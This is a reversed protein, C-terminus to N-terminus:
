RMPAASQARAEGGASDFQLRHFRAYRGNRALLEAHRGVEVIRGAELVVIRDASEVTSLRHAIVLTTRGRMLEELSAQVQKESESDLASTAEDLILIPADKLFARAIALRQRQGGSLKLGNEGVLTDLGDPLEDVFGMIHAARAAALVRERPAERMTGYAINAAITDNFLVVEQSVLAINDRLSKLTLAEVPIGDVLLRGGSAHYFRPILNVLTTKGGGSGGVLAVTEGPAIRLDIDALADAEAGDYRFRLREFAIEGRARGLPTTGRDEEPVRDILGFVSEAAALGRQLHANVEALRKLPALMMLMAALFSVFGGVTTEARASQLLAISIVVAVGLSVIMQTIPVTAAAAVTQRMNFGRWQNSAHAFRQTEQAQGGYIKVVKNCEITEELIHSLEGTADQVGINMRRLRKSSARVVLAVLPLVVFSVLTLKWNLYLLWALLGAVTLTDRVLVTVVSTAAQSVGTVDYAVKSLLAGSSHDHFFSTPMQLLRAFMEGRLTGVVRTSVWSLAYSTGFTFVGRLAFLGIIAAPVLALHSRDAKGFSEDLLPRVLIPLLPELAATLAMGLVALAFMRWHPRVYGLLRRYLASSSVM